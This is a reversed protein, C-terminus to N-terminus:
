PIMKFVMQFITGPTGLSLAVIVPSNSKGVRSELIIASLFLNRVVVVLILMVALVVEVM